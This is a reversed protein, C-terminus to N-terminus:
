FHCIKYVLSLCNFFADLSPKLKFIALRSGHFRHWACLGLPFGSLNWDSDLCPYTLNSFRIHGSMWTNLLLPSLSGDFFDRKQIHVCLISSRSEVPICCISKTQPEWVKKTPSGLLYRSFDWSGWSSFHKTQGGKKFNPSRLFPRSGKNSFWHVLIEFVVSATHLEPAPTYQNGTAFNIKCTKNTCLFNYVRVSDCHRLLQPLHPSRSPFDLANLSLTM